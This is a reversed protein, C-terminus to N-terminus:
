PPVTLGANRAVQRFTEVAPTEERILRPSAFDIRFLGFRAHYGEAWEFNDLLSWHYYGRIDVGEAIAHEIARLHRLLHEPRQDGAADAVGNETVYLPWNYSSFRKLQQYLGEPYVDWGLDNTERGRPVYQQSLAKDTLDARIHDRTYYNIGLYDFSGALGPVERDIEVAGPVTLRIRGTKAALVIAENFFEDTLGTIAVDAVSQTAPQFIRVHHAIGVKSSLGDGDADIKDKARVEATAVAHAEVLRALVEAAIVQDSKGPPWDGTLYGFTTYVNPENLTCWFDVEDGLAEAVRGAFAAFREKTKDSEWGGEAAVWTPLTFHFLTVMPEIGNSRLRTAWQRYRAVATADWEGEKPELRSWEVSFRYSNVGLRKMAALDDDFRNWSDTAVSSKDDNLIHPRGDEFQGAEWQTWDNTLGGETQHAATATGLLFGAGFGKGVEEIRADGAAFSPRPNCGSILAGVGLLLAVLLLPVLLPRVLLLLRRTM